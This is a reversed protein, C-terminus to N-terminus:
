VVEDAVAALHHHLVHYHAAVALAEKTIFADDFPLLLLLIAWFASLIRHYRLRWLNVLIDKILVLKLAFLAVLEVSVFVFFFVLPFAYVAYNFTWM